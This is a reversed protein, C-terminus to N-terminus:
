LRARALAARRWCRPWASMAARAQRARVNVRPPNASVRLRPSVRRRAADLSAVHEDNWYIAGGFDIDVRVAPPPTGPRGQPLNLKVAHTAVPLTIILIVLLVLMVDILPTANLQPEAVHPIVRCTEGGQHGLAAARALPTQARVRWSLRAAPELRQRELGGRQEAFALDDLGDLDNRATRLGRAAPFGPAADIRVDRLVRQQAHLDFGCCRAVRRLNKKQNRTTSRAIM